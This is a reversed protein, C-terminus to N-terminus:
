RLRTEIVRSDRLTRRRSALGEGQIVRCARSITPQSYGTRERLETDTMWDGARELVEYVHRTTSRADALESPLSGSDSM